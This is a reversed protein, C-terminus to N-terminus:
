DTPKYVDCVRCVKRGTEDLFQRTPNWSFAYSKGLLHFITAVPLTLGCATDAFRIVVARRDPWSRALQDMDDSWHWKETKTVSIWAM